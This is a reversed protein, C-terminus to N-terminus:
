RQLLANEESMTFTLVDGTPVTPRGNLAGDRQVWTWAVGATAVASAGLALPLAIMSHALPEALLAAVGTAALPLITGSLAAAKGASERFPGIVAAQGCSQHVAHAFVYLWQPVIVAWAAQVGLVALVILAVGSALTIAGADRVTRPVSHGAALWRRCAITGAMHLVSGVALVGAYTYSELRYREVLLFSSGVLFLYHGTYTCATLATYARFLPHRAIRLWERAAVIRSPPTEAVPQTEPVWWAVYGFALVGVVALLGLAASAGGASGVVAGALPAALAVVGLWSFSMSLARVCDDPRYLDRLMARACVGAAAVGAGQLARWVVLQLASGALLCAIASVVYIALGTLLVARRGHRDALGGWVIQTAGFGLVFASLTWQAYEASIGLQQRLIPLVPLYLNGAIPHLSLLVVVATM